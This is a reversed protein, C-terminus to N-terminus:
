SLSGRKYTALRKDSKGLCRRFLKVRAGTVDIGAMMDQVRRIAENRASDKSSSPLDEPKGFYTDNNLHHGSLDRRACVIYFLSAM